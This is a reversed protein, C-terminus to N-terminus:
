KTFLRKLFQKTWFYNINSEASGHSKEESELKNVQSIIIAYQDAYKKGRLQGMLTKYYQTNNGQMYFFDTFTPMFKRVLLTAIQARSPNKKNNLLEKMSEKSVEQGDPVQLMIDIIEDSTISRNPYFFEDLFAKKDISQLLGDGHAQAIYQYSRNKSSVDIYPLTTDGSWEESGTEDFKMKGIYMTKVLMKIFEARSTRSEPSFNTLSDGRGKVICFKQLAQISLKERNNAIDKFNVKNYNIDDYACFDQQEKIEASLMAYYDRYAITCIGPLVLEPSADRHKKLYWWEQKGSERLCLPDDIFPDYCLTYSLQNAGSTGSIELSVQTGTLGSCCTWFINNSNYSQGHTMCDITGCRTPQDSSCKWGSEISGNKSCGDGDILNGDDCQESWELKGNGMGIYSGNTWGWTTAGTAYGACIADNKCDNDICDTYGDCDNDKKDWCSVAELGTPICNSSTTSSSSSSGNSSSTNSASTTSSSSGNVAVCQNGDLKYGSNCIWDCARVPSCYSSGFYASTANNPLPGDACDKANSPVSGLCTYGAWGACM